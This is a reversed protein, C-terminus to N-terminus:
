GRTEMEGEQAPPAEAPEESVGEGSERYALAARAGAQEASKKSTGRGRGWERNQV